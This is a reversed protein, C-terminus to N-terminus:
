PEADAVPVDWIERAYRTITLDSSFRGMRAVTRLAMATWGREDRFASAVERQADRYAAFDALVLYPDGGHLLSAVLPQFRRPDAPSLDGAAVADLAERLEADAEYPVRPDYGRVWLDAVEPETLGFIFLNDRGVAEAIEINAGDLTGITLAGNLSLKMNGTGSAEMGATSIQESLDAAPVIVEALSVDYNPVFVVKLHDKVVPDHNVHDAVAHIFAIVLKAAAYGPAAKGAFIVTRTLWGTPGHRRIRQALALAHLAALLQRKYEHIRKVQVDYLSGPDITVGCRYRM